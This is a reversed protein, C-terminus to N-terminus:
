QGSGSGGGPCNDLAGRRPKHAHPRGDARPMMMRGCVPCRVPAKVPKPGVAVVSVITLGAAEALVRWTELPGDIHDRLMQNVHKPSFGTRTALTVQPIGSERIAQRLVPRLGDLDTVTWGTM